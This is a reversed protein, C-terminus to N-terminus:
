GKIFNIMIIRCIENEKCEGLYEVNVNEPSKAWGWSPFKEWSFSFDYPCCSKGISHYNPHMQRAMIENEASVIMGAYSDYGTSDSQTLKYLKM